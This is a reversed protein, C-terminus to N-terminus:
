NVGKVYFKVNLISGYLWQRTDSQERDLYHPPAGTEISLIQWNDTKPYTKAQSLEKHINSMANVLTPLSKNKGNLVIPVTYIGGRDLHRENDHGPGLYMALGDKQPLAGHDISTYPSTHATALEKVAQLIEYYV